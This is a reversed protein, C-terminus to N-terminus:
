EAVPEWVVEYWDIILESNDAGVARVEGTGVTVVDNLWKYRPDDSLSRFLM